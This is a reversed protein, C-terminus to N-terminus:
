CLIKKRMAGLGIMGISLMALSGPEPTNTPDAPATTYDINLTAEPTANLNASMNATSYANYGNYDYFFNLNSTANGSLTLSDGAALDSGFGAALLDISGGNQSGLSASNDPSTVSAFTGNLTGTVSYGPASYSNYHYGYVPQYCTQFFGCSYSTYYAIYSYGFDVAGYSM